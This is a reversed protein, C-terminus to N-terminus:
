CLEDAGEQEKEKIRRERALSNKKCQRDFAWDSAIRSAINHTAKYETNFDSPLIIGGFTENDHGYFNNQTM